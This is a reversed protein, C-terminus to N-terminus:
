VRFVQLRVYVDSEPPPAKPPIRWNKQHPLLPTFQRQFALLAAGLDPGPIDLQLEFAIAQQLLECKVLETTDDCCDKMDMNPMEEEQSHMPCAKPAKTKELCNQPKFYLAMSKREGKCMHQNIVLGTSSFFVLFALFIHPAKHVM